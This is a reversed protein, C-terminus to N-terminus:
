IVSGPEPAVPGRADLLGAIGELRVAVALPAQQETLGVAREHFPRIGEVNSARFAVHSLSTQHLAHAANM